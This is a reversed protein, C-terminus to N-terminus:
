PVYVFGVRVNALSFKIQSSPGYNADGVHFRPDIDVKVWDGSGGLELGVKRSVYYRAAANLETYRIHFRDIRLKVYRADTEASWRTGILYRGYLGISGVPPTVSKSASYSVGGGGANAAADIDTKFFLAGLGVGVGAQTREKALIAYRYNLFLLNTTLKTKLSAGVDFTTDAFNFQRQSTKDGTRQSFQFGGELEHKRGLRLRADVRPQMKVKALGLDDQANITTGENGNSADVRIDANLIIAAATPSIEWKNYLSVLQNPAASPAPAPAASPAPAPPKAKATSDPSATQAAAPMAAFLTFVLVATPCIWKRLSNM